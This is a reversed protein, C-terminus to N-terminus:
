GQGQLLREVVEPLCRHEIALVKRAIDEATDAPDLPVSEQLIHGGQDYQENVYHITIGSRTEGAQKVAEHVRMGYMGKGGYQPLLSPHINIIRQPFREIFHPPMLWLFGALVILDAAEAQLRAALGDPDNFHARGFSQAQAGLAATKELVPADPRNSWVSFRVPMRPALYEIIRVANSGTGSALIAVHKPTSVATNKPYSM